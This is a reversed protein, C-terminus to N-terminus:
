HVVEFHHTVKIHPHRRGYVSPSSYQSVTVKSKANQKRGKKTSNGVKKTIPVVPALSSKPKPKSSLEQEILTELAFVPEDDFEDDYVWQEFLPDILALAELAEKSFLESPLEDHDCGLFEVWQDDNWDYIDNFDINHKESLDWLDTVTLADSVEGLGREDYHGFPDISMM